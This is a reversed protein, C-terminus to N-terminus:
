QLFIILAIINGILFIANLAILIMQLQKARASPLAYKPEPAQPEPKPMRPDPIASQPIKKPAEPAKYGDPYERPKHCLQCFKMKDANESKCHPCIWSDKM